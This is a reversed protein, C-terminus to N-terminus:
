GAVPPADHRQLRREGLDDARQIGALVQDTDIAIGVPGVGHLRQRAHATQAIRLHLQDDRELGIQHQHAGAVARHVPQLRQAHRHQCNVGGAMALQARLEFNHGLFQSSGTRPNRQPLLNLFAHVRHARAHRGM